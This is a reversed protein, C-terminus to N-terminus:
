TPVDEPEALPVMLGLITMVEALKEVRTLALRSGGTESHSWDSLDHSPQKTDWLFRLLGLLANWSQDALEAPRQVGQHFRQNGALRVEDAADFGVVKLLGHHPSFGREFSFM